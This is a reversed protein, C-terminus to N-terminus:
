LSAVRKDFFKAVIGTSLDSTATFNFTSNGALFAYGCPQISSLGGITRNQLSKMSITFAQLGLPFSTQCCGLGSCSGQIVEKPNSCMALCGARFNYPNNKQSEIGGSLNILAYDDCGVVTLKNATSSYTFPSAYVDFSAGTESIANGASDYCKSAIQSNRIMVQSETIQLIDPNQSSGLGIM